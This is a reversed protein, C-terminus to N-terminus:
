AKVRLDLLKRIQRSATQTAADKNRLRENLYDIARRLQPDDAVEDEPTTADDLDVEAESEEPALQYRDRQRRHLYVKEVIEEPIAVEYNENPRVGWAEEEAADKRRHINKGSPRWYTATTLKLASQGGELDLINQVTGKGWTREGVVIARQHDQLCAAVIESASASFNNVLVVMPIDKPVVINPTADYSSRLKGHRGNTSVIRGDEVFLDCMDVAADLLGGANGRLDMIIAEFGSRENTSELVGAVEEVTHQGFTTLRLYGIRPNEELHFDWSGDARRTDGLVSDVLIVERVIKVDFPEDRGNREITLIIESGPKGRMLKVADNLHLGIMGEGDVAIVRDGAHIGARYAPTGVLPSLVLLPQDTEKKEVEVGVGGFEQDLSANMQNLSDPGIYASYQDLGSVMGAMADEFLTRSDVDEVYYESVLDMADAIGSAYRNREAKHYCILSLIAAFFIITLNRPPM